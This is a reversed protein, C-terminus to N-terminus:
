SNKLNNCFMKYADRHHPNGFVENILKMRGSNSPHFNDDWSGSCKYLKCIRPRCPYILCKQTIEDRFVCTVSLEKSQVEKKIKPRKALYKQIRNIEEKNVPVPGCCKGCNKCIFENPM